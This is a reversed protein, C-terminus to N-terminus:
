GSCDDRSPPNPIKRVKAANVIDAHMRKIKMLRWEGNPWLDDFWTAASGPRNKPKNDADNESHAMARAIYEHTITPTLFASEFAARRAKEGEELMRMAWDMPREPKAAKEEMM